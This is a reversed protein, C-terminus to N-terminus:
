RLCDTGLERSTMMWLCDVSRLSPSQASEVLKGDRWKGEYREGTHAVFVGNGEPKGRYWNGEYRGEPGEAVGFGTMRGEYWRGEMRRRGGPGTLVGKTWGGYYWRGEYRTGDPYDATGDRLDGNEFVGRYRTRREMLEGHGTMRGRSVDGEYRVTRTGDRFWELVGQGQARGDVCPGNWTVTTTKAQRWRRGDYLNRVECDPRAELWSPPRSAVIITVILAVFGIVVVLGVRGADGGVFFLQYTRQPNVDPAPRGQRAIGEQVLHMLHSGNTDLGSYYIPVYDPRIGTDYGLWRRKTSERRKHFASPDALELAIIPSDTWSRPVFISKRPGAMVALHAGKLDSWVLREAPRRPNLIIGRRDIILGAPRSLLWYTSIAILAFGSIAIVLGLIAATTPARALLAAHLGYGIAVVLAGGLM